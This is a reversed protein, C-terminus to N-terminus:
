IVCWWGNIWWEWVAHRKCWNKAAGACCWQPHLQVQRSTTFILPESGNPWEAHIITTSWLDSRLTPSMHARVRGLQSFVSMFICLPCNEFMAISNSFQFTNTHIHCLELHNETAQAVRFKQRNRPDITLQYSRLWCLLSAGKRMALQYLNSFRPQQKDKRIRVGWM